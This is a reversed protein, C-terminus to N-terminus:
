YVKNKKEELYAVRAELATLKDKYSSELVGKKELTAVANENTQLSTFLVLFLNLILKVDADLWSSELFFPLVVVVSEKSFNSM